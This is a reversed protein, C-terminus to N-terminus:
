DWVEKLDREYEQELRANDTEHRVRAFRNDREERQKRGHGRDRHNIIFSEGPAPSMWGNGTKKSM